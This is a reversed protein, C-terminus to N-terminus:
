SKVYDCPDRNYQNLWFNFNAMTIDYQNIEVPRISRWESVVYGYIVYYYAMTYFLMHVPLKMGSCQMTQIAHFSKIIKGIQLFLSVHSVRNAEYRLRM